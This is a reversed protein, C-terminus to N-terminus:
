EMTMAFELEISHFYLSSWLVPHVFLCSFSSSLACSSKNYFRNYM